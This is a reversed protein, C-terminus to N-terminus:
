EVVFFESVKNNDIILEVEYRGKKLKQTPIFKQQTGLNEQYANILEVVSNGKSDLLNLRVM